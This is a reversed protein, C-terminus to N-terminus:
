RAGSESGLLRRIEAPLERLDFLFRQGDRLRKVQARGHSWEEDGVIVVLDHGCRDAYRLQRVLKKPEPFVEVAIGQNRLRRALVQYEARRESGFFAILVEAPIRNAPIGGLEELADLLRDVGLSAGVGPLRQGSYAQVLDDYRGGSCVSGISPLEDLTVELVIGTYYDLGRAISTDLVVRGVSSLDVAELVDGVESLRTVGEVGRGSARMRDAVGDLTARLGGRPSVVELLETAGAKDAVGTRVLEDIVRAPGIKGLKDLSRLIQIRGELLGLSELAGDLLARSNLRIAFPRGVVESLLDHVVLVIEADAAASDAGIIDFDLQGFERSRGRQTNEGRWVRGEQYLRMPTGLEGVHQAVFRALPVTLDFRLGVRRGGPDPFAYLQHDTEQSGKGLLVEEYELSPTRVPAYGYRHLLARASRLARQEEFVREPGRDEFGKLRRPKIRDAM